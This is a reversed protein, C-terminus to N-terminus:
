KEYNHIVIIKLDYAVRKILSKETVNPVTMNLYVVGLTKNLECSFCNKYM